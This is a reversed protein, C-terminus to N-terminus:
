YLFDPCLSVYAASYFDKFLVQKKYLQELSDGLESLTKLRSEGVEEIWGRM